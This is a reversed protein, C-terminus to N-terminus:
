THSSNLRTSKRDEFLRFYGTKILINYVRLKTFGTDWSDHFQYINHILNIKERNSINSEDVLHVMQEAFDEVDHMSM